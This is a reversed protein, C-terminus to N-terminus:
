EVTKIGNKEASTECKLTIVIRTYGKRILPWECWLDYECVCDYDQVYVVMNELVGKLGYIM